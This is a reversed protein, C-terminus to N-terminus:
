KILTQNFKFVLSAQSFSFCYYSLLNFTKTCAQCGINTFDKITLHREFATTLTGRLQQYLVKFMATILYKRLSVKSFFFCLLSPLRKWGIIRKYLQELCILYFHFCPIGHCTWVMWFDARSLVLSDWKERTQTMYSLIMDEHKLLTLTKGIVRVLLRLRRKGNAHFHYIM